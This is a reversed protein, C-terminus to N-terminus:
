VTDARRARGRHAQPRLPVSTPNLRNPSANVVLERVARFRQRAAGGVGPEIEAVPMHRDIRGSTRPALAPADSVAATRERLQGVGRGKHDPRDTM